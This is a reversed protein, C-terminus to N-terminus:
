FYKKEVSETPTLHRYFVFWLGSWSWLLQINETMWKVNEM